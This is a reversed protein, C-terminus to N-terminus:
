ERREGHAGRTRRLTLWVAAVMPLALIAAQWRGELILTLAAATSGKASLQLLSIM